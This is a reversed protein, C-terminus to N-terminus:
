HITCSSRDQWRALFLDNDKYSEDIKGLYMLKARRDELFRLLWDEPSEGSSLSGLVYFCPHQLAFTAVTQVSGQLGLLNRIHRENGFLSSHAYLLAGAPDTLYFTRKALAPTERDDIETFTLASVAVLPIAPDLHKLDMKHLGTSNFPTRETGGVNRDTLCRTFVNSLAALIILAALLRPRPFYRGIFLPVLALVALESPLGYRPFFQTGRVASTLTFLAPLM